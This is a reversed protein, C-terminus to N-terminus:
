EEDGSAAPMLVVVAGLWAAIKIINATKEPSVNSYKLGGNGHANSSFDDYDVFVRIDYM